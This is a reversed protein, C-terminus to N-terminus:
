RPLASKSNNFIRAGVWRRTQPKWNYSPVRKRPDFIIGERCNTRTDGNKEGRLKCLQTEVMWVTTSVASTKWSKIFYMRIHLLLYTPVATHVYQVVVYISHTYAYMCVCLVYTCWCHTRATPVYMTLHLRYTPIAHCQTFTHDDPSM